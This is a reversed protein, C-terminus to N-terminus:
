KRELTIFSYDYPNEKDKEHEEYSAEEWETIDYEPFKVDGEFDHEIITLYIRGAKPFFERFIQSGGIVMAEKANKAANLAEDVSHVVVCGEAKYSEDRTIIINLRKLLPKGISEFTKRGMIVPKNLTLEKFRKMDAPMNWPLSNDKGIVRNKGMAVVFSIIM